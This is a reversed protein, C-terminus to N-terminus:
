EVVHLRRATAIAELQSHAGLEVLIARIHTRVTAEALGLRTAILKAPLGEALLGLVESQRPTLSGRVPQTPRDAPLMVHMLLRREGDDVAVTAVEVKRKRGRAKIRMVQGPVAWGECALRATSCGRHCMHSGGEAQGGIVDWCQRGVAEEASVGTLEEAAANWSVVTLDPDFTFLADGSRFDRGSRETMRHGERSNEATGDTTQVSDIKVLRRL